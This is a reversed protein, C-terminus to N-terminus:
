VCVTPFCYFAPFLPKEAKPLMTLVSPIFIGDTQLFPINMKCHQEISGVKGALSDTGHSTCPELVTM